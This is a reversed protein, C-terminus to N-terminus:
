QNAVNIYNTDAITAMSTTRRRKKSAPPTHSHAYALTSRCYVCSDNHGTRIWQECCDRHLARACTNCQVLEREPKIADIIDEFCIPCEEDAGRGDFESTLVVGTRRLRKEAEKPADDPKEREIKDGTTTRQKVELYRRTYEANVLDGHRESSTGSSFATHLSRVRSIWGGFLSGPAARANSGFHEASLHWRLVRYIIFLVHKCEVGRRRAHSSADPCDCAFRHTSRSLVVHYVNGTSGSVDFHLAQDDVRATLLFFRDSDLKRLRKVQEFPLGVTPYSCSM